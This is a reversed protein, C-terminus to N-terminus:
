GAAGVAAARQPRQACGHGTPVQGGEEDPGPVRHESQPCTDFKRKRKDHMFFCISRRWFVLMFSKVLLLSCTVFVGLM